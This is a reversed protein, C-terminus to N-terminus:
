NQKKWGLVGALVAIIILLILICMCSRRTSKSQYEDAQKLEKNADVIREHAIEVNYDIRDVITGQDAVMTNLDRFLTLLEQVNQTLKVIEAHRDDILVESFTHHVESRPEDQQRVYQESKLTIIFEKQQSYLKRLEERLDSVMRKTATAVVAKDKEAIEMKSIDRICKECQASLKKANDFLMNLNQDHQESQFWRESKTQIIKDIELRLRGLKDAFSDYTDVWVPALEVPLKTATTKGFSSTLNRTAM